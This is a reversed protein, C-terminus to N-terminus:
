RSASLAPMVLVTKQGPHSTDGWQEWTITLEPLSGGLVLPFEQKLTVTPVPPCWLLPGAARPASVAENAPM